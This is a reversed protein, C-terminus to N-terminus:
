FANLVSVVANLAVALFRRAKHQVNNEWQTLTETEFCGITNSSATQKDNDKKGTIARM